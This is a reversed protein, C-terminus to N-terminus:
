EVLLTCTLALLLCNVHWDRVCAPIAYAQGFGIMRHAIEQTRFVADYRMMPDAYAQGFGIMQHANEQTRFVSDYRM